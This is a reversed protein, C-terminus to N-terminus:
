KYQAFFNMIGQADAAALKNRYDDSKLLQCEQKNTYFGHEVLVSPMTTNKIVYYDNTKVGRDKINPIAKITAQRIAKAAVEADTGKEYCYIEWGSPSTWDVGNGMANAHISIFLDVEGNSNAIEVRNVLSPDTMDNKEVTMVVKVGQKELLAKLKYAVDRNFEWEMLSEDPSRKGGTTKGHGPDICVVLKGDAYPEFPVVVIEEDDNNDDGDDPIVPEDNEDGKYTEPFALIMTKGDESYSIQPTVKAKLDVVVRSNYVTPAGTRVSKVYSIDSNATKTKAADTGIISDPVDVYYRDPQTLSVGKYNGNKLSKNARFKVLTYTKSTDNGYKQGTYISTYEVTMDPVGDDKTEIIVMRQNNDWDVDCDFNEAVFRIPIMTRGGGQADVTVIRPAVDLSKAVGNVTAKTSGIWMKVTTGNYELTVQSNEGNWSSTGGINEVITAVPVIVRDNEIVPAVDTKIIEGDIQIRVASDANVATVCSIILLLFIVGVLMFCSRGARFFNM